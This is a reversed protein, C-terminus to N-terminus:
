LIATGVGAAVLGIATSLHQVEYVGSANIRRMALQYDLLSRNGSLGSIVILVAKRLDSRTVSQRQCFPHDQRCFFVFPEQLLPQEVLDPHRDLPINIGFEAQGRLVADRVEQASADIVLIRNGPYCEAYKRIVAPLTYNAMTPISAITISGKTLRSSDKLHSVALTMESVMRQAHPM